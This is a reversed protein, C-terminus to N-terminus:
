MLQGSVLVGTGLTTTASTWWKKGPRWAITTAQKQQSAPDTRQLIAHAMGGQFDVTQIFAPTSTQPATLQRTQNTSTDPIKPFDHIVLNNYQDVKALWADRGFPNTYAIGSPGVEQVTGLTLEDADFTLLWEPWGPTAPRAQIKFVDRGNEKVKAVVRYAYSVNTRAPPQPDPTMPLSHLQVTFRVTWSDGVAWHPDFAPNIAWLAAPAAALWAFGIALILRRLM